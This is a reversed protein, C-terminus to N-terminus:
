QAGEAGDKRPLETTVMIECEAGCPRGKCAEFAEDPPTADPTIFQDFCAEEPVCRMGKRIPAHPPCTCAPPGCQKTCMPYPDDCTRECVSPCYNFIRDGACEVDCDTRPPRGGM